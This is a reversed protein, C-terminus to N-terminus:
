ETLAEIEKEEAIEQEEEIEWQFKEKHDIRNGIALGLYFMNWLTSNLPAQEYGKTRQYLPEPIIEKFERESPEYERHYKRMLEKGESVLKITDIFFRGNAYGKYM